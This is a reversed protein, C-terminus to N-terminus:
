ERWAREGPVWFERGPAINQRLLHAHLVDIRRLQEQYNFKDVNVLVLGAELFLDQRRMKERIAREPDEGFEGEFKGQGHHEVVLGVEFYFDCIGLWAGTEDYVTTQQYPGAPGQAM